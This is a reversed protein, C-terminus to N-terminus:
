KPQGAKWAEYAALTEHSESMMRRGSVDRPPAMNAFRLAINLAVGLQRILTAQNNITEHGGVVKRGFNDDSERCDHAM